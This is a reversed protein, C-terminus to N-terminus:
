ENLREILEVKEEKLFENVIRSDIKMGYLENEELYKEFEPVNIKEITKEEFFNTNFFAHFIFNLFAYFIFVIQIFPM